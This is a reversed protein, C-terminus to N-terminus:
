PQEEDPVLALLDTVGVDKHFQSLLTTVQGRHHTQHNFFHLVIASFRKCTRVGKLNSYCLVDCLDSDKLGTAWREILADLVIRHESLDSLNPFLIEDLSQPAPLMRVPALVEHCSPHEAFRRLWIRDAVAIHNLTRHVSGFFAGRDTHLESMSLEGASKYLKANIWANYSAMQAFLDRMRETSM